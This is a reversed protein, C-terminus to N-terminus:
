LELWTRVPKMVQEPIRLTRYIERHVQDPTGGKRIKLVAGTSTPLVITCVQHTSLQDRLTAWSTHIGADLFPQEIAVLLHYALVCLFIHTQVRHQLHHFIPREALPSKMSRFASEVRTLLMYTRWVDEDGLDTRDTKLLYAGDLRQAKEMRDSRVSWVVTPTTVDFAIDYYRVVRPYRERLRGIAQQVKSEVRLRGRTVRTRLKELDALLRQEHKDRIAHDKEKRGDSRCLIHVEKGVTKRKIWVRSKKQGENCPSPQRLVEDWGTEDEFDDLHDDREKPRCAVIYHHDHARIQALNDDFAMGRDVVVTSGGKRGTRAELLDLMHDVTTRDTRNGEFVEHAKPFGQRDLVLGVVVQKCDPRQDRSYGRQAQPNLLCKGEFFTSTLDYLYISDDLNFLTRERDALAQEIVARQPHLRDLNRYLSDDALTAFDEGLIDGLATRRVVDPMAHESSPHVLRSLTMVESLRRARESLGAKKLIRDLELKLWVQHGVHVPGAPRHEETAVRDTYVSVLDSDGESGVGRPPRQDGGGGGRARDALAEVQEDPELAVQGSLASEIRRALALWEERPAPALAGLSCFTRHRPGDPTRVSEVLLHNVYEKGRVRKNTRRIFM